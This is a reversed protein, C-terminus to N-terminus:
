GALYVLEWIALVLVIALLKPWTRGLDPRRPPASPGAAAPGARAELGALAHPGATDVAM